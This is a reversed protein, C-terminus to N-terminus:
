GEDVSSNAITSRTVPRHLRRMGHERGVLQEPELRLGVADVGVRRQGIVRDSQGGGGAIWGGEPHGLESSVDGVAGARPRRDVEDEGATRQGEQAAALVGQRLVHEVDRTVDHAVAHDERELREGVVDGGVLQQRGDQGGHADGDDGEPLRGVDAM